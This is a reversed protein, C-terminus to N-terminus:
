QRRAQGVFLAMSEVHATHPFMDIVGAAVLRYGHENVLLGADRALTAPNCSIYLITQPAITAIHPIVEAAGSRPPDILVKDFGGALWEKGTPDLTLDAQHFTANDVRNLEANSAAHAVLAASGEIGVVAAGCRAIPLTFNGIGCFLDLIREGPQPKLQAMAREVMLRNVNRNVQTFQNPAFRMELAYDPLSYSLEPMEGSLPAISEPGAPQLLITLGLDIGLALLHERDAESLPALHRVIIVEGQDGIAVELQAVQKRVSLEGIAQSLDLLREGVLPDLILCRDMEAIYPSSRERFGVLVRGKAIVDRVGLRAKSRYGFPQDHIPPLIEEPTVHGLRRLSDLLQEQKLEIQHGSDVHQLSCGGCRDFHPCPPPVRYPSATVVEVVRGEDRSRRCATYAFRVVEGTIAGDILLQKGDIAAIGRGEHTMREITVTPTEEPLRRGKRRRSM